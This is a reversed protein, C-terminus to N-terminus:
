DFLSMQPGGPKRFHETTLEPYPGDLRYKRKAVDFMTKFQGSWVGQGVMRTHFNSDNLKGGRLSRIRNLVKDRRDPYHRDLWDVFLPAVELPLRVPVFGCFRAGADAAAKLIRPMEHDTLGPVVPAVMVGTPVGAKTLAEIAALRRRPSSARPEMRSSLDADLSTVSLIVVAGNKRALDSLLDIDRTVLHSKTIVGCPNGFENLVELCKRTLRFQKEAPQYCDTVGSLSLTTPQYRKASLEKRLLEPADEKVMIKTEFDLGASFGLFEHTPRAYCYVCGHSCGRYPNISYTFGVDPSDNHAIITRATDKLYVTSPGDSEEDEDRRDLAPPLDPVYALREFRNPPNHAAGRGHITLDVPEM